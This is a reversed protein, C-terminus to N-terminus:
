STHRDTSDFFRQILLHQGQKVVTNWLVCVCLLVSERDKQRASDGGCGGVGWDPRGTDCEVRVVAQLGVWLTHMVTICEQPCLVSRRMEAAILSLRIFATLRYQILIEWMLGIIWMCERGGRYRERYQLQNQPTSILSGKVTTCMLPQIIVTPMIFTCKGESTSCMVRPSTQRLVDPGPSAPQDEPRCRKKMDYQRHLLQLITIWQFPTYQIKVWKVWMGPKWVSRFPKYALVELEFSVVKLADPLSRPLFPPSTNWFLAEFCWPGTLNLSTM